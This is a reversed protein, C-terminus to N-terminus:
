VFAENDGGCSDGGGDGCSDGGGASVTRSLSNWSRSCRLEPPCLAQVFASAGSLFSVNILNENIFTKTTLFGLYFPEMNTWKVVPHLRDVKQLMNVSRCNLFLVVCSLPSM